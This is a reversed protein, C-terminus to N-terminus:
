MFLLAETLISLIYSLVFRYLIYLFSETQSSTWGKNKRKKTVDPTLPPPPHNYPLPM